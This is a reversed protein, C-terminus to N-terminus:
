AHTAGNIEWLRVLRGEGGTALVVGSPSFSVTTVAGAHGKFTELEGGSAVDWLKVTNDIGGTAIKEGNTSFAVSNVADVHGELSFRLTRSSLEWVSTTGDGHGAALHHGDPSFALSNIRPGPDLAFLKAGTEADLLKLVGGFVGVALRKDDPSFALPTWWIPPRALEREENLSTWVPERPSAIDWLCVREKSFSALEGGDCSFSLAHIQTTHGELRRKLEGTTLSYLGLNGDVSGVAIWQLNADVAAAQIDDHEVTVTAVERHSEADILKVKCREGIQGTALALTKGDQSYRLLAVPFEQRLTPTETSRRCLRWLYYWEFRRFDPRGKAPRHRDLLKLVRRIDAAEWAQLALNMDSIYLQRQTEARTTAERFALFPGAIALFLLLSGALAGLTTTTPNRKCRRWIRSVTSVPRSHIPEGQIFRHLDDRLKEASQFRRNPDKELCKLCITEMDRPVNRNLTRPSPADESIIQQMLVEASGGFPREGSLMEFLVVGLSYVDSRKDAEQASGRAQEPSMYAPTGLLQGECTLKLEEEARKALGFDMLRPEENTDLMINSPKLDRHIVGRHHAHGLGGAIKLCIKAAEIPTPRQSALWDALNMGSVLEAVIFMRGDERGVEYVPVVNPHNLQASTRAERLFQEYQATDYVGRYPLKIAVLRNLDHDLAKWVTGFSGSGLQDLLEFCGLRLGTQDTLKEDIVCFTRDCSPCVIRAGLQQDGLGFSAQCHPCRIMLDSRSAQPLYSDVLELERRLVDDARHPFRRFYEECGPRNGWRQRVRYESAIVECSVDEPTGLESISELYDEVFLVRSSECPERRADPKMGQDTSARRWRYEMDIMVLEEILHRLQHASISRSVENALFEPISPARDARWASEFHNISRDFESEVYRDDNVM